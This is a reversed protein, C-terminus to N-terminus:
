SEPPNNEELLKSCPVIHCHKAKGKFCYVFVNQIFLSFTAPWRLGDQMFVVPPCFLFM